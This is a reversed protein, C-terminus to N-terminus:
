IPVFKILIYPKFFLITDNYIIFLHCKLLYEVSLKAFLSDANRLLMM